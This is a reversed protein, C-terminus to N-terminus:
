SNLLKRHFTNIKLWNVFYYLKYSLNMFRAKDKMMCMYKTNLPLIKDVDINKKFDCYQLENSKIYKGMTNSLLQFVYFEFIGKQVDSCKLEKRAKGVAKITDAHRVALTTNDVRSASGTLAYIRYLPINYYMISTAYVQVIGFFITDESNRVGIPFQINHGKVFQTRCIGGGANLRVYHNQFAEVGTYSKNEQLGQIPLLREVKGNHQTQRTVLMDVTNNKELFSYVKQIAGEILEDDADLFLVFDGSAKQIANNRAVSVGANEQRIYTFLNPYKNVFEEIILHSKDKSGDDVVLIEFQNKSKDIQSIVSNFCRPLYEEKNYVPIIITIKLM